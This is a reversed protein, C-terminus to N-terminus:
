RPKTFSLVFRDTRPQPTKWALGKKNDSGYRLIDSSSDLTFGAQEIEKIVFRESIRHLSHGVNAGDSDLAAHDVIVYRGGPRLAQYIVRNMKDRDVKMYLLDHYTLVNTVLDLNNISEPLPNEFPREIWEVNNLPGDKLRNKIMPRIFGMWAPTNHAYVKGNVGAERTLYMTTYGDGASIDAIKSGSKIKLFKMLENAKRIEDRWDDIGVRNKTMFPGQAISSQNKTAQTPYPEKASCFISIAM